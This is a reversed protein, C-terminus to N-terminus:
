GDFRALKTVARGSRSRTQAKEQAVAVAAAAPDVILHEICLTRKKANRAKILMNKRSSLAKKGPRPADIGHATALHARKAHWAEIPRPEQKKNQNRPIGVWAVKKRM